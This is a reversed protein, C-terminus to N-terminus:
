PDQAQNIAPHPAAPPSQLITSLTHHFSTARGPAPGGDARWSEIVCWCPNSFGPDFGGEPVADIMEPDVARIIQRLRTGTHQQQHSLQKTIIIITVSTTVADHCRAVQLRPPLLRKITCRGAMMLLWFDRKCGGFGVLRCFIYGAGATTACVRISGTFIGVYVSGCCWPPTIGLLPAM